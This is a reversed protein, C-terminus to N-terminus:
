FWEWKFMMPLRHGPNSKYICFWIRFHWLFSKSCSLFLFEHGKVCMAAAVILLSLYFNRRYKILCMVAYPQCGWRWRHASKRSFTSAEVDWLGAPRWPRNCSYNKLRREEKSFIFYAQSIVNSETHTHGRMRGMTTLCRSLLLERITALYRSPLFGGITALCRSLTFWRIPVLCRSPLFGGITALCHSPLFTVTTVFVCAVISYNNSSDNEINGM